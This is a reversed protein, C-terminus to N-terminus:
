GYIDSQRVKLTHFEKETWTFFRDRALEAISDDLYLVRYKPKDSKTAPPIYDTIRAPWVEDTKNWFAVVTEGITLLSDM